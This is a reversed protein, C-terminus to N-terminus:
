IWKEVKEKSNNVQSGVIALGDLIDGGVYIEKLQRLVSSLGSAEHTTFPRIIKGSYHSRSGGSLM